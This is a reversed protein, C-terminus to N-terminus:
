DCKLLGKSGHHEKVPIEILFDFQINKVNEAHEVKNVVLTVDM